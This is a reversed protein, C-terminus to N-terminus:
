IGYAKGCTWMKFSYGNRKYINWAMRINIAPDKLFAVNSVGQWKDNIQFVGYDRSSPTGAKDYNTNVADPNLGGNEHCTKPGKGKLLIMAKDYHEGFVERIEADIKKYQVSVPEPTPTATPAITASASAEKFDQAHVSEPIPSIIKRESLNEIGKGAGIVMFIFIVATAIVGKATVEPKVPKIAHQNSGVGNRRAPRKMSLDIAPRNIVEVLKGGEYIKLTNKM